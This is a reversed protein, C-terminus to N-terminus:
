WKLNENLDNMRRRLDKLMRIVMTRFETDLTKTAEVENLEKESSKEQENM